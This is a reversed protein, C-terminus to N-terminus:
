TIIHYFSLVLERQEMYSTMLFRYPGLKRDRQWAGGPGQTSQILCLPLPQFLEREETTFQGGLEWCGRGTCISPDKSSAEQKM